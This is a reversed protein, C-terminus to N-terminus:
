VDEGGVWETDSRGPTADFASDDAAVAYAQSNAPVFGRFVDHIFILDQGGPLMVLADELYSLMSKNFREMASHAPIWAGDAVVDGMSMRVLDADLRVVVRQGPSNKLPIVASHNDPDASDAVGEAVLWTLWRDALEV